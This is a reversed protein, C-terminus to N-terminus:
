GAKRVGVLWRTAKHRALLRATWFSAATVASFVAVPVWPQLWIRAGPGAAVLADVGLLFLPHVFFVGLALLGARVTIRSSRELMPELRFALLAIGLLTAATGAPYMYRRLEFSLGTTLGLSAALLIATGVALLIPWTRKAWAPAGPYRLAFWAGLAMHPLHMVIHTAYSRGLDGLASEFGSIIEAGWLIRLAYAGIVLAEPSRRALMSAIPTLLYFTLLMPIFYLHYWVHGTLLLGPIRGLELANEGLGAARLALYLMAWALYPAGILSVRKRVFSGYAGRGGPWPRAWLLAGSMFVFLPVAYHLLDDLVRVPSTDPLLERYPMLTHVLVVTVIAFVRLADWAVVRSPTQVTNM